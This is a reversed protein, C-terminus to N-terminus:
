NLLDLLAMLLANDELIRQSIYDSLDLLKSRVLLKHLLECIYLTEKLLETLLLILESELMLLKLEPNLM